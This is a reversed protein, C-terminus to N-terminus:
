PLENFIIAKVFIIFFNSLTFQNYITSETIFWHFLYDYHNIIFRQYIYSDDPQQDSHMM